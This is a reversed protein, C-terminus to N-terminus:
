LGLKKLWGKAKDDLSDTLEHLESELQRRIGEKIEKEGLRLGQNELAKQIEILAIKMLESGLLHIPVGEHGGFEYIRIDPVSITDRFWQTEIKLQTGVFSLDKIIVRRDSLRNNPTETATNSQIHGTNTNAQLQNLLALLNVQNRNQELTFLMGDFELQDVIILQKESYPNIALTLHNLVFANENQYHKPNEVEIFDMKLTRKSFDSSFQSIHVPTKLTKALYTETLSKGIDDFFIFIAGLALVIILTIYTLIKKM